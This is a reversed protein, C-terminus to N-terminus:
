YGKRIQSSIEEGPQVSWGYAFSDGLLVWEAKENNWVNDPNNFGHRDSQTIMWRGNENAVVTTKKSVGGLHLLNKESVGSLMGDFLYCASPVAAIGEKELDQIVELRSRPDFFIGAKKAAASRSSFTPSDFYLCIEVIYLGTIFITTSIVLNMRIEDKLRM